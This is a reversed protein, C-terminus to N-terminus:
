TGDRRASRERARLFRQRQRTAKEQQAAPDRVEKKLARKEELISKELFYAARMAAPVDHDQAPDKAWRKALPVMKQLLQIFSSRTVYVTQAYPHGSSISVYGPAFEVTLRQIGNDVVVRPYHGHKAFYHDSIHTM